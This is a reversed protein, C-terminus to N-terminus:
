GIQATGVRLPPTQPAPSLRTDVGVLSSLALVLSGPADRTTAIVHAPVERELVRAILNRMSQPLDAHILVSLRFAHDDFFTTIVAKILVHAVSSKRKVV